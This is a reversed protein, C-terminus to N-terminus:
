KTTWHHLSFYGIGGNLLWWQRQLASLLKYAGKEINGESALLNDQEVEVWYLPKYEM